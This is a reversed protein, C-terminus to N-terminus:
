FDKAQVIGVRQFGPALPEHRPAVFGPGHIVFAEASHPFEVEGARLRTEADVAVHNELNLERFPLVDHRARPVIDILALRHQPASLTLLRGQPERPLLPADLMPRGRGSPIDFGKRLSRRPARGGDRNSKGPAADFLRLAAATM